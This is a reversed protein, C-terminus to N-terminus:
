ILTRYKTKFIHLLDNNGMVSLEKWPNKNIEPISFQKLASGPTTNLKYIFFINRKSNSRTIKMEGKLEEVHPLKNGPATFFL